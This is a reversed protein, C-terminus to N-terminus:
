ILTNKGLSVIFLYTAGRLKHTMKVASMVMVNGIIVVLCIIGLPLLGGLVRSDNLRINDLPSTCNEVWIKTELSASELNFKTNEPINTTNTRKEEVLTTYQNSTVIDTATLLNTDLSNNKTITRNNNSDGFHGLM